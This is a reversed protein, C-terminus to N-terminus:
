PKEDAVALMRGLSELEATPAKFGGLLARAEAPNETAIEALVVRAARHRATDASIQQVLRWATTPDTSASHAIVAVSATDRDSGAPMQNVWEVLTGMSRGSELWGSTLGAIAASQHASSPLQGLAQVAADPDVQAWQEFISRAMGHDEAYHQYYYNLAQQPATASWGALVGNIAHAQALSVALSEAWALAAVPDRDALQRGITEGSKLLYDAEPSDPPPLSYGGNELYEQYLEV